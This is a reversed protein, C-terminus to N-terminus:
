EEEGNDAPLFVHFVTGGPFSNVSISGHHATIIRKTIALGLGTGGSKTTLFPEFIRDRIDDPIGPGSDSVTIEVQPRNAIVDSTVARISLTGGEKSMAEIANSILNTFVQELSRADGLVKPLDDAVQFYSTVNLRSLRPRWRDLIRNLLMGIDMPEIKPEIPRSFALVSEMLHDLRTCDNQMRGLADLSPDDAELRSALLQLGTSINNIPNRVEHAFIATFEGLFARHELQQTRLRIQEHESIDTIFVLIYQLEEGNQVPIMQVYAPFSQGNRRHLSIQGLNHIPIGKSATQMASLLGEHGILINELLQGRVERDAYGLMIEASPNIEIIKLEPDAVLIGEQASETLQNRIALEREHKENEQRLNEVLIAQQLATSVIKGILELAEKLYEDPLKKEGGAAILGFRAEGYGLPTSAVYSLKAARGAGHIETNVPKGVVWVGTTALRILDTSPISDPFVATSEASAIKNLKPADSDAQYICAVSSGLVTNAIELVKALATELEYAEFLGQLEVLEKVLKKRDAESAKQEEKQPLLFLVLWQGDLDLANAQLLIPRSEQAHCQVLVIREDGPQLPEENEDLILDSLPKGRLENQTCATLKLLSSNALLIVNRERDLLM